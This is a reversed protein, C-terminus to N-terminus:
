CGGALQYSLLLTSVKLEEWDGSATAAAAAAPAEKMKEAAPSIRGQEEATEPMAPSVPAASRWTMGADLGFAESAAVSSATSHSRELRGPDDRKPSQDSDHSSTSSAMSGLREMAETPVNGASVSRRRHMEAFSRRGLSSASTSPVITKRIKLLKVIEIVNASVHGAAADVLGVPSLGSAIAHNRAASMLANLTATSQHKFNELLSPEVIMNPHTEFEKVDDSIDSIAVVVARMATLVGSPASSRATSLLNDISTQFASVHVDAINGDPSAPMHDTTTGVIARSTFMVSTAKLNRLETRSKEWRRRYEQIEAQLERIRDAESEREALLEENRESLAKMEDMLIVFENQLEKVVEITSPDGMRKTQELEQHLAQIDQEYVMARDRWKTVELQDEKRKGDSRQRQTALQSKLDDVEEKLAQYDNSAKTVGEANTQLQEELEKVRDKEWRERREADALEKELGAVRRDMGGVKTTLGITANTETRSSNSASRSVSRLSSASTRGDFYSPGKSKMPPPTTVLNEESEDPASDTEVSYPVEIKEEAITSKNPVVVDNTASLAAHHSQSTPLGRNQNIQSPRRAPGLNIRENVQPSSDTFEPYRRKLEYYVDSALDKFRNKPLTALKQRAQNRKPHFDNRVPLFPIRDDLGPHSNGGGGTSGRKEEAETRRCLEDYVDTSLEQFQSRTLRTLKERASARANPDETELWVHLFTQLAQFHKRAIQRGEGGGGVSDSRSQSPRSKSDSTPRMAVRSSDSMRDGGDAGGGSNRPNSSISDKNGVHRRTSSGATPLHPRAQDGQSYAYQSYNLSSNSTSPPPGPSAPYSIQM